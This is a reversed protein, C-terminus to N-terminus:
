KLTIPILHTLLIRLTQSSNSSTVGWVNIVFSSLTNDSGPHDPAMSSPSHAPATTTPPHAGQCTAVFCSPLLSLSAKAEKEEWGETEWSEWLGSPFPGWTVQYLAARGAFSYLFSSFPDSPVFPSLGIYM